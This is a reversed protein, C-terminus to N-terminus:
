QEELVRFKGGLAFYTHVLHTGVVKIDFADMITDMNLNLNDTSIASLSISASYEGQHLIPPSLVVEFTIAEGITPRMPFFDNNETNISAIDVGRKNRLVIGLKLKLADELSHNRVKIQIILDEGQNLVLNDWGKESTKVIMEEIVVDGMGRRQQKSSPLNLKENQKINLPERETYKDLNAQERTGILYQDVVYSANGSLKIKGEDMWFARDCLSKVATMDHSVFLFAIGSDRLEQMKRNAKNVFSADGVSLVEDVLILDADLFVQSAFALRAFMGSSYSLVHDHIAPGIDAFEIMNEVKAPIEPMPVKNILCTLHLNQVGSSKMDFAAGLELLNAIKHPRQISGKQPMYIGSVLKLLTSKGAGNKGILGCFEGKGINLNINSLSYHINKNKSNQLGFWEKLSPHKYSFCAHDIDLISAKSM